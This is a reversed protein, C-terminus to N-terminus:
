IDSRIEREDLRAKRQRVDKARKIATKLSDRPDYVNDKHTCGVLFVAEKRGQGFIGLVRQQRGDAIFRWEWIKEAKCDAQLMKCGVWNTPLDANGNAKLLSEFIDQGDESLAQYWEAIGHGTGVYDFFRWRDSKRAPNVSRNFPIVQKHNPL